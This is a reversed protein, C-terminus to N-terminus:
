ALQFNTRSSILEAALIGDFIKVRWRWWNLTQALEDKINADCL